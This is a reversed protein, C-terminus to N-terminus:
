PHGEGVSCCVRTLLAATYKWLPDMINEGHVGPLYINAVDKGQKQINERVFAFLSKITLIRHAITSLRTYSVAVNCTNTNASVNQTSRGSM